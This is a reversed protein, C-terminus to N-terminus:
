FGTNMLEAKLLLQDDRELRKKHVENFMALWVEKTVSHSDIKFSVGPVHALVNVLDNVGEIDSHIGTNRFLFKGIRDQYDFSVVSSQPTVSWRFIRHLWSKKKQTADIPAHKIVLRRLDSRLFSTIKAGYRFLSRDLYVRDADFRIGLPELEREVHLNFATVALAIIAVGVIIGAYIISASFIDMDILVFTGAVPITKVGVSLLSVGYSLAVNRWSWPKHFWEINISLM